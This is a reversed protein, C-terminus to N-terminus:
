VVDVRSAFIHDPALWHVFYGATLLMDEVRVHNDGHVEVLWNDILEFPAAQLIHIEESETDVKVFEAKDHLVRSLTTTEVIVGYNALKTGGAEKQALLGTGAYNSVAMRFIRTHPLALSILQDYHVVDPEFAWV